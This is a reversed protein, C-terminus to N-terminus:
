QKILRELALNKLLHQEMSQAKNNVRYKLHMLLAAESPEEKPNNMTREPKKPAEGEEDELLEKEFKDPLKSVLKDKSSQSHFYFYAFIESGVAWYNKLDGRIFSGAM